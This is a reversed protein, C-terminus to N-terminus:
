LLFVIYLFMKIGGCISTKSQVQCAAANTCSVCFDALSVTGTNTGVLLILFYWLMRASTDSQKSITFIDSLNQM